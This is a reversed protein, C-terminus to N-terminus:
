GVVEKHKALVRHPLGHAIMDVPCQYTAELMDATIKRSKHYILRRNLCAIKKVYTSIVGIDHTVLVITIEENLKQLLEYLGMEIHSDVSATPEDLLLIKPEAALARAILVRQRQGWSLRGIQRQKLTFMEVKNLADATIEKDKHTYRKFRGTNGLRGMLAVDWVSAPFDRDLLPYQPAYGIFGRAREPSDGWVSVSGRSPKILGLIVKFLTTKGGGNPGIIGLFDGEEVSLNVGELAVLGDYDVWVDELNIVEGAM